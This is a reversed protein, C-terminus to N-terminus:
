PDPFAIGFARQIRGDKHVIEIRAHVQQQLTKPLQARYLGPAAEEMPLEMPNQTDRHLLLRARAGSVAEGTAEALRASIGYDEMALDLQWSLGAATREEVTSPHQAVPNRDPGPSTLGSIKRVSLNVGALAVLIACAGAIVIFLPIRQDFPPRRM